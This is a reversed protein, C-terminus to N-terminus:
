SNSGRLRRTVYASVDRDIRSRILEDYPLVTADPRQTVSRRLWYMVEGGEATGTFGGGRQRKLVTRERRILAAGGGGAFVVFRLDGFERARKGHAEARAPITIWKRGGTPRITGGFYRQRIGVQNISILAATDGDVTAFSTGRAAQAYFGTRRGRLKNPRTQNLGFLHERITNVGSRGAIASLNKPSLASELRRLETTDGAVRRVTVRIGLGSM